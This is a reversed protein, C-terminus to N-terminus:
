VSKCVASMVEQWSFIEAQIKSPTPSPVGDMPPGLEGSQRLFNLGKGHRHHDGHGKATLVRPKDKGLSESSSASLVM